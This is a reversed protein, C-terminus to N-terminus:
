AAPTATYGEEAVAAVLEAVPASGQVTARGAQLDVEATTVGDVGELARKVAASCHSCSMGEIKLETM